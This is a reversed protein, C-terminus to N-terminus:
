PRDHLCFLARRVSLEPLMTLQGGICCQQQVKNASPRVCLLTDPAITGGVLGGLGGLVTGLTSQIGDLTDGPVTRYFNSCFSSKGGVCMLAGPAPTLIGCLALPNMQVMNTLSIGAWDRCSYLTQRTLPIALPHAVLHSM